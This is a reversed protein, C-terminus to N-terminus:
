KRNSMEDLARFLDQVDHVMELQLLWIHPQDMLGGAVLPLGTEKILDVTALLEPKKPMKSIVGMKIENISGYYDEIELKQKELIEKLGSGGPGDL